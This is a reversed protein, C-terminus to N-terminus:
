TTKRIKNLVLNSFGSIVLPILLFMAMFLAEIQNYKIHIILLTINVTSLNLFMIMNLFLLLNLHEKM